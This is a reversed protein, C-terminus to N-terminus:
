GLKEERCAGTENNAVIFDNNGSKEAFICGTALVFFCASRNREAQVFPM